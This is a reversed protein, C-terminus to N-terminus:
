LNDDAGHGVILNRSGKLAFVCCGVVMRVVRLWHLETGRLRVIENLFWLRQRVMVVVLPRTYRSLIRCPRGSRMMPIDWSTNRRVLSSRLRANPTM